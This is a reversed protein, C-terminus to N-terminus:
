ASPHGGQADAATSSDGMSRLKARQETRLYRILEASVPRTERCMYCWCFGALRAAAGGFVPSEAMRVACKFLEFLPDSGFSYDLRGLRFRDKFLNSAAGTHRHHYIPLAPLAEAAWGNMRACTQMYWDEGGYPFPPYGGVARYCAERVVQAAHPVSDIRNSSRPRFAGEEEEYVFGAALGLARHRELHAILEEFYTPGVAIDADMNGIYRFAVEDLVEAARHLARVKSGFNRGSSRTVRLLRIFAHRRAYGAVIEDTRDTSGDSVIVWCDPLVTQSLVSRITREILAEENYAATMLVYTAVRSREASKPEM